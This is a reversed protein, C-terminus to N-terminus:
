HARITGVHQRYWDVTQRIGEELGIKAKWGLANLKSVDLRKRPTGDPKSPDTRIEGEYGVVRAVIQALELISVDEGVGINVIDEGSYHMMLLITADAMNDVHLFERRPTGTGWITVAPQRELRAQEFRRIMAPLVHSHESHFNDNPGYLNTPMVSIADFGYQRRYAQCM